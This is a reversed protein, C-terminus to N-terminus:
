SSRRVPVNSGVLQRVPRDIWPSSSLFSRVSWGHWRSWGKGLDTQGAKTGGSFAATERARLRMRRQQERLGQREVRNSGAGLIGIAFTMSRRKSDALSPQEPDTAAPSRVPQGAALPKVARLRDPRLFRWPTQVADM